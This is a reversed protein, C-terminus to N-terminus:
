FKVTGLIHVFYPEGSLRKQGSHAQFSFNYAKRILEADKKSVPGQMLSLITEATEM